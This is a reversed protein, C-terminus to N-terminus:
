RTQGRKVAGPGPFLQKLLDSNDEGLPIVREGAGAAVVVRRAEIRKLKGDAIDEGVAVVGSSTMVWRKGPLIVVGQLAGAQARALTESPRWPVGSPDFPNRGPADALALESPLPAVTLRPVALADAPAHLRALQIGLWGATGLVVLGLLAWLARNFLRLRSM